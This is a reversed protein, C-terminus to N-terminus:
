YHRPPFAALHICGYGAPGVGGRHLRCLARRIAEKGIFLSFCCCRRDSENAARSVRECYPCTTKSYILVHTEKIEKRIKDRLAEMGEPDTLPRKPLSEETASGTPSRQRKTKFHFHSFEGLTYVKYPGWIVHGVKFWTTSHLELYLDVNM